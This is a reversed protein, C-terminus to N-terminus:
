PCGRGLPVRARYRKAGITIVIPLCAPRAVYFGGPYALWVTANDGGPCPLIRVGHAIAPKADGRNDWAMGAREHWAPAIEITFARGGARIFIPLKSWLPFSANQSLVLKKARSGWSFGLRGGYLTGGPQAVSRAADDCNVIALRPTAAPASGAAVGALAIAALALAIRM